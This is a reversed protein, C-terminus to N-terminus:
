SLYAKIEKDRLYIQSLQDCYCIIKIVYRINAPPVQILPLGTLSYDIHLIDKIEKM